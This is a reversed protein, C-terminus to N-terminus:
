GMPAAPQRIRGSELAVIQDSLRRAQAPDHTVIILAASLRDRLDILTREVADRTQEDLAATPEVLLLVAPRLALARALMVRQQEGVSLQLASRGAFTGDLGALALM